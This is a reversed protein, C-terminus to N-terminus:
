WLAGPWVDPARKKAAAWRESGYFYGWSSPRWEGTGVSGGAPLACRREFELREIERDAAAKVMLHAQRERDQVTVIKARTSSLDADLQEERASM